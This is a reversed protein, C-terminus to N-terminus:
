IITRAPMLENRKTLTDSSAPSRFGAAAYDQIPCIFLLNSLNILRISSM